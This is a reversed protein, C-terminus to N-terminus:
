FSINYFIQPGQYTWDMKGTFKPKKVKVDVNFSDYGIGLGVYKKPQWLLAGRYNVLSGDINDISLAFWQVMGDLYFNRGMHWLAHGGFVPLPADVSAKGGLTGGVGGGPTQIDATIGAEFTTYHLGASLALELNETHKLAYEYAAEMITFSFDGKVSSGALITDGQWEIDRDLTEKKSRSFDTYLVRMHHKDNFRWLGDLRFRSTDKDGFTDKWDIETGIEGAEGDVRIKLSSNNIFTGLSLYGKSTILNAEEAMATRAVGLLSGLAAATALVWAGAMQRYAPQTCIAFM